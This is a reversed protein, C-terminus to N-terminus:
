FLDTKKSFNSMIWILKETADATYTFFNPLSNIKFCKM